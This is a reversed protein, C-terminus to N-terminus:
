GRRLLFAHSFVFPFGPRLRGEREYMRLTQPHIDYMEAVASIMYAGGSKRKTAMAKLMAWVVGAAGSKYLQM